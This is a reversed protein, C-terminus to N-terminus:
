REISVRTTNNERLSMEDQYRKSIGGSCWRLFLAVTRLCLRNYFLTTNVQTQIQLPSHLRPRGLWERKAELRRALLVTELQANNL